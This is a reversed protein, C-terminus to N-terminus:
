PRVPKEALIALCPLRPSATVREHELLRLGYRQVLTRLSRLTFYRFYRQGLGPEALLGRTRGARVFVRVLGGPKLVRAVERMAANANRPPLHHFVAQARVVDLSATRIGLARVDMQALRRAGRVARLMAFSYDIGFAILDKRANLWALDRGYGTGLDLV